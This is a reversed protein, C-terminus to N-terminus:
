SHTDVTVRVYKLRGFELIHTIDTQWLENAKLGRPNAGEKSPMPTFQQCDPCSLIIDRAQQISLHFQRKLSRANQHFSSHSLRAQELLNPVVVPMAVADTCQNGEAIPRALDTHSRVHLVYFDHKRQVLGTAYCSDTVINVPENACLEFAMHVAVMELVQVLGQEQTHVTTKCQQTAPDQWTIAARKSRGSANTFVTLGPVPVLHCHRRAVLPLNSAEAWLKHKHLIQKQDAAILIDDMYHYIIADPFRQRAPQLAWAVAVQCMTPSNMGQPLVVWHYQLMPAAHNVSPLSFAFWPADEPHLPISFFCDIDIITLPWNAPLMTPSPLRPQLAGKPEIVANIARLDHLMQWKGSKKPICFVPTNWPSTTPVIHGLQLQEKVLQQLQDLREKKLPWQDVWVPIDTKWNLRLPQLVTQRFPPDMTGTLFSFKCYRYDSHYHWIPGACGTGM